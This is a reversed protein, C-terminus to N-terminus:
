VPFEGTIAAVADSPIQRGLSSFGEGEASSPSRCGPWPQRARIMEQDRRNADKRFALYRRRVVEVLGLNLPSALPTPRLRALVVPEIPMVPEAVPADPAAPILITQTVPNTATGLGAAANEARFYGAELYGLLGSQSRLSALAEGASVAGSRL